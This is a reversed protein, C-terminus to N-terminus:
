SASLSIEYCTRKSEFIANFCNKAFLTLLQTGPVADGPVVIQADRPHCLSGSSSGNEKVSQLRAVYEVGYSLSKLHPELVSAFQKGSDPFTITGHSTQIQITFLIMFFVGTATISGRHINTIIKM